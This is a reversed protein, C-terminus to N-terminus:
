CGITNRIWTFFYKYCIPCVNKISMQGHETMEPYALSLNIQQKKRWCLGTITKNPVKNMGDM